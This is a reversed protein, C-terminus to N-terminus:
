SLPQARGRRAHLRTLCAGSPGYRGCGAEASWGSPPRHGADEGSAHRGHVFYHVSAVSGVEQMIALERLRDLPLVVNVDEQFGTRDFNTSIHSMVLDSAPTDGPILRFDASDVSFPRDGRRQLGATSILAIRAATVPPPEIWPTGDFEPMPMSLFYDRGLEDFDELRAM